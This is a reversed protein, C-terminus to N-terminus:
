YVKASPVRGKSCKADVLTRLTLELKGDSTQTESSELQGMMMMMVLRFLALPSSPQPQSLLLSFRPVVCKTYRIHFYDQKHYLNGRSRLDTLIWFSQVPIELSHKTKRGTTDLFM